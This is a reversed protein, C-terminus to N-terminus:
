PIAAYEGTELERRFRRQLEALETSKEPQWEAFVENLRDRRVALIRELADRGSTTLRYRPARGDALSIEDVFRRERLQRLGEALRADDVRHAPGLSTVDLRPDHEIRLLLWVAIPILDVGAREAVRELYRQQLSREQLVRLGRLMREISSADRPMPFAESMEESVTGAAAAVTERLPREPVLWVLLFGLVAVSAAVLFTSDLSRTFATAYAERVAAPLAAMTAPGIQAGLEGSFTDAPLGGPLHTLERSLRASLIAGLVATGLSGGVFRFLIAGSTSVGLDEYDVSNQVAMVLVQMVMGLGLGILLLTLSIVLTSSAGTMRSLLFLGISTIATGVVPFFKYRGTRSIIQGSVISTVLTGMMMPLMQLGSATPSAGKVVQLFVPVYTVSGFLSFGVVLGVACAAAFARNGFLRLPLIPEAARREAMLFLALALAAVASVAVTTPSSWPFKTGGLDCLLTIASLVVALLGAGVYDIAHSVRRSQRPLAVAIVALALVGLPLNVYFIWRWTLHTTFYGGVLPGVISSVSFVAGFIGQYRGRDRPPIIDGVTAQATVILGGGGLGQLARFAILQELSQSMGCLASGVLFIGIGTQLVKKRGYLDGLKGYLPTVVTQALLYATVVWSLQTLGGLESVITPLATAVITSDLAALLVALVLGAYVIVIQRQAIPRPAVATSM